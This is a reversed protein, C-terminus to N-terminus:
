VHAYAEVGEREALGVIDQVVPDERSLDPALLVRVSTQSDILPNHNLDRASRSVSPGRLRRLEGPPLSALLTKSLVQGWTKLSDWATASAFPAHPDDIVEPSKESM